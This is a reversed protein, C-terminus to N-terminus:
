DKHQLVLLPIDIKFALREVTHTTFLRELFSHKKNVIALIDIHDAKIFTSVDKFLKSSTTNLYHHTLNNFLSSFFDTNDQARYLLNNKDSLHLVDLAANNHNVFQTLVDLEGTKFQKSNTTIFALRDIGNYSYGNPIALVPVLCRQMVRVTNSGFLVKELGSAGKTGMVILDISHKESVQNISDIFNDYDVISRFEHRQNNYSKKITTLINSISKKAADILTKYITTSSNVAIMNDSIFSSAKQINLIYFQCDENKFLKLAYHIANISNKSFDTPLLIHKM